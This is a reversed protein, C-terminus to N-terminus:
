YLSRRKGSLETDVCCHLSTIHFGPLKTRFPRKHCLRPVTPSMEM